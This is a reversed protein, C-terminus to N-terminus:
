QYWPRFYQQWIWIGNDYKGTWMKTVSYEIPITNKSVRYKGTNKDLIEKNSFSFNLNDWYWQNVRRREPLNEPQTTDVQYQIRSNGDEDFEYDPEAIWYLEGEHQYVYMGYDPRYVRLIGNEVIEQLDTGEVELPVFEAPDAYVLKGGSLFTGTQYAKRKGTVRLLVEYNQTQLELKEMNIVAIFGSNLYDYECSFYSNVDNRETYNMKPFYKKGSMTDKLIIQFKGRSANQDLRFAFGRLLLYTEDTEVEDVQCVWSFDDPYEEIWRDLGKRSLAYGGWILLLLGVCLLVRSVMMQNRSKEAKAEM